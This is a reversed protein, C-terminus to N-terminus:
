LRRMLRCLERGERGPYCKRPRWERVTEFRGRIMSDIEKETIGYPPPQPEEDEDWPNLFYVAFMTGAPVLVEHLSRVYSDRYSPHLGSLCTHEVVWDFSNKLSSPLAFLDGVVYTERGVPPVAEAREIATRSIDLGMVEAAGGAAVARVDHGFGCGPVFVRGSIASPQEALFELIPPAAAGKEWPTEGRVYAADWDLENAQSQM